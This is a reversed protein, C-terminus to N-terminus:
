HPNIFGGVVGWLGAMVPVTHQPHDHMIHFYAGSDVWEEVAMKDRSSLRVYIERFIVRM